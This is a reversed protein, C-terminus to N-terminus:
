MVCAEFPAQGSVDSELREAKWGSDMDKPFPAAVATAAEDWPMRPRQITQGEGESREDQGSSDAGRRVPGGVATPATVSSSREGPRSSRDEPM